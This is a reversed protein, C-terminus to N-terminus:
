RLLVMSGSFPRIKGDEMVLQAVYVYVGNPAFKGKTIGNWGRQTDNPALDKAEYVLDGWRNFIQLNRIEKLDMGGFITFTDNNGDGDPSFATPM